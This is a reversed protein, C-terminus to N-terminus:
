FIALCATALLLTALSFQKDRLDDRRAWRVLCTLLVTTLLTAGTLVALWMAWFPTRALQCFWLSIWILFGLDLAAWFARRLGSSQKPMAVVANLDPATPM